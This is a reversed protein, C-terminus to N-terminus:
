VIPIFAKLLLQLCDKPLTMAQQLAHTIQILSIYILGAHAISPSM